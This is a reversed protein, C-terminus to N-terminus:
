TTYTKRSISFEIRERVFYEHRNRDAESSFQLPLGVKICLLLAEVQSDTLDGMRGWSDLSEKWRYYREEKQEPTEAAMGCEMLVNM